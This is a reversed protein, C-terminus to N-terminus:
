GGCDRMGARGNARCQKPRCAAKFLVASNDNVRASNALKESYRGIISIIVVLNEANELAGPGRCGQEISAERMGGYLVGM